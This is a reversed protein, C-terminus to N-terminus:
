IWMQSRTDSSEKQNPHGKIILKAESDRAESISTCRRQKIKLSTTSFGLAQLYQSHGLKADCPLKVWLPFLAKGVLCQYPNLFLYSDLLYSTHHLISLHFPILSQIIWISLRQGSEIIIIKADLYFATYM